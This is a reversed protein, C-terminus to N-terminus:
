QITAQLLPPHESISASFGSLAGPVLEVSAVLIGGALWSSSNVSPSDAVREIGSFVGAPILTPAGTEASPSPVSM